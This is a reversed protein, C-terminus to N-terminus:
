DSLADFARILVAIEEVMPPGNDKVSSLNKLSLTLGEAAALAVADKLSTKNKQLSYGAKSLDYAADIGKVLSGSAVALNGATRAFYQKEDHSIEGQAKAMKM